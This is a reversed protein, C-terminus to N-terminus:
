QMHEHGAVPRDLAFLVQELIELVVDAGRQAVYGRECVELRNFMGKRPSSM